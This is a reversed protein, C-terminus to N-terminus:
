TARGTSGALAEARAPEVVAAQELRDAVYRGCLSLMAVVGFQSGM